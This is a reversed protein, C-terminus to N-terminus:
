MWLCPCQFRLTSLIAGRGRLMGFRPPLAPGLHCIHEKFTATGFCQNTNAEVIMYVRSFNFKVFNIFYHNSLLLYCYTLLPAFDLFLLM